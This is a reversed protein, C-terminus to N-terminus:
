FLELIFCNLLTEDFESSFVQRPTINRTFSYAKSFNTHCPYM